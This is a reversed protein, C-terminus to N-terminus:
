RAYSHGRSESLLQLYAQGYKSFSQKYIGAKSLHETLWMPVGGSAKVELLTLEPSLIQRGGVPSSLSLDEMRYLINNDMTMRFGQDVPDFWAQREYSLFVRPELNQYFDRFYVLERGIQSNEPLSALREMFALAQEQTVKVRRKYVVGQYKKKMELFVDTGEQVTGYSRLRLKEKYVPKELSRRILRYDPTDFYLNCITSHGFKDPVMHEQMLLDLVQRQEPNLLYKLERRRFVNM